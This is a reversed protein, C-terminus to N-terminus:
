GNLILEWAKHANIKFFKMTESELKQANNTTAITTSPIDKKNQM